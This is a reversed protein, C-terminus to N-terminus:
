CFVCWLRLFRIRQSSLLRFLIQYYPAKGSPFLSTIFQLGLELDTHDLRAGTQAFLQLFELKAMPRCSCPSIAERVQGLTQTELQRLLLASICLQMSTFPLSTSWSFFCPIFSFTLQLFKLLFETKTKTQMPIRLYKSMRSLISNLSIKRKFKNGRKRDFSLWQCCVLWVNIYTEYGWRWWILHRALNHNAPRIRQM